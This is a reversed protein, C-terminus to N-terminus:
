TLPRVLIHDDHLQEGVLFHKTGVIEFGNKEYFRAARANQQNVGLWCTTAGTAAAAELTADMLPGAIGGGHRDQLVYFKSLEISTAGNVVARVDPDAIPGSILMTYGIPVGDSEAVLVVRNDDKLYNEFREESLHTAVFADVDSQVTGPPCALVFTRAALDHLAAADGPAARRTNIPM